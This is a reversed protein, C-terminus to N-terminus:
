EDDSGDSSEDESGGSDEKEVLSAKLARKPKKPLEKTPVGNGRLRVCEAEWAVVSAEHAVCLEKWRAELQEKSAKKSQKAVKRREM